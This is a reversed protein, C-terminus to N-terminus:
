LFSIIYKYFIKKYKRSFTETLKNKNFSKIMNNYSRNLKTNNTNEKQNIKFNLINNFIYIFRKIDYLPNYKYYINNIEKESLNKVGKCM